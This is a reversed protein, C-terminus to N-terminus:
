QHPPPSQQPSAGPRRILYNVVPKGEEGIMGLSVNNLVFTAAGANDLSILFQEQAKWQMSWRPPALYERSLKGDIVVRIWVSDFTMARLVLPASPEAARRVSGPLSSSQVTDGMPGTARQVTMPVEQIEEVGGDNNFISVSVILLIILVGGVLLTTVNQSRRSLTRWAKKIGVLTAVGAEHHFPRADETTKEPISGRCYAEYEQLVQTENVGVEKAYARLFARVYVQPISGVDGAELARLIKTQIRTASAVDELPIGKAERVSRLKEFLTPM